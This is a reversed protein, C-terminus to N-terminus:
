FLLFLSDFHCFHCLCLCPYRYFLTVPFMMKILSVTLPVKKGLTINSENIYNDTAKLMACAIVSSILHFTCRSNLWVAIWLQESKLYNTSAFTRCNMRATVDEPHSVVQFATPAKNVQTGVTCEQSVIPLWHFSLEHRSTDTIESQKIPIVTKLHSHQVSHGPNLIGAGPHHAYCLLPQAARVSPPHHFLMGLTHDWVQSCKQIIVTCTPLVAM